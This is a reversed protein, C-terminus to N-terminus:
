FTKDKNHQLQQKQVICCDGDGNNHHSVNSVVPSSLQVAAGGSVAMIKYYEDADRIEHDSEHAEDDRSWVGVEQENEPSILHHRIHRETSPSHRTRHLPFSSDNM